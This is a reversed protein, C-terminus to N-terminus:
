LAQFDLPCRMLWDSVSAWALKDSLSKSFNPNERAFNASLEDVITPLLVPSSLTSPPHEIVLLSEKDSRANLVNQYSDPAVVRLRQLANEGELYQKLLSAFIADAAAPSDTVASLKDIATELLTKNGDTWVQSEEVGVPEMSVLPLPLENIDRSETQYNDLTEIVIRFEPHIFPLNWSLVDTVKKNAHFVLRKSDFRPVLFVYKRIHGSGLLGAVDDKKNLLKALDTSLKDRQKEYLQGVSLPELAAYCQYAAGDHSFAEMGLDGQDKDPVTQFAHPDAKAYRKTLLAMCYQQFETGGWASIAMKGEILRSVRM